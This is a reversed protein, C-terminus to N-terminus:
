TWGFNKRIDKMVSDHDELNYDERSEKLSMETERRQEPTLSDLLKSESFHSQNDLIIYIQELLNQDKSANVLQIIKSKLKNEM